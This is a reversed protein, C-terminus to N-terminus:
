FTVKGDVKTTNSKSDPDTSVIGIAGPTSNVYLILLEESIFFHPAEARGQFVLGLWYKNLQSSTMGYVKDATMAGTSTNTKLLAITVKKGDSWRQKEGRMIRRLEKFSMEKDGGNTIVSLQKEESSYEKAPIAGSFLLMMHALIFCAAIQKFSQKM